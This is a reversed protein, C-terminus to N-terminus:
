SQVWRLPSTGHRPPLPPRRARYEPAHSNEGARGEEDGDDGDGEGAERDAVRAPGGVVGAGSSRVRLCELCSGGGGPVLEGPRPQLESAESRRGARDVCEAAGRSAGRDRRVRVRDGDCARDDV